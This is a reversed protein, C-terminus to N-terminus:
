TPQDGNGRPLYILAHPYEPDHGFMSTSDSYDPFNLSDGFLFVLLRIPPNYRSVRDAEWSIVEVANLLLPLNGDLMRDAGEWLIAVQTEQCSGLGSSLCDGFANWNLPPTVDGPHFVEFPVSLAFSQLFSGEDQIARGDMTYCVFGHRRLEAQVLPLTRGSFLHFVM